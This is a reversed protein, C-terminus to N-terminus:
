KATQALGQETISGITLGTGQWMDKSTGVLENQVDRPWPLQPTLVHTPGNLKMVNKNNSFWVIPRRTSRDVFIFYGKGLTNRTIKLDSKSVSFKNYVNLHRGVVALAEDASLSRVLASKTASKKTKAYPNSFGKSSLTMLRVDVPLGTAKYVTLTVGSGNLLGVVQSNTELSKFFCANSICEDPYKKENNVKIYLGKTFSPLESYRAIVLNKGDIKYAVNPETTYMKREFDEDWVQSIRMHGEPHISLVFAMFKPNGSGSTKEREYTLTICKSGECNNIWKGKANSSTFPFLVLLSMVFCTSVLNNLM